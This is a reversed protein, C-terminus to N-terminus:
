DNSNPIETKLFVNDICKKLGNKIAELLIIDANSFGDAYVDNKQSVLSFLPSLTLLSSLVVATILELISKKHKNNRQKPMKQEKKM